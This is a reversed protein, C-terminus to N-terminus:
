VKTSVEVAMDPNSAAGDGKPQSERRSGTATSRRSHRGRVLAQVKSASMQKRMMSLRQEKARWAAQVKAAMSGEEKRISLQVAEAVAGSFDAGFDDLADPDGEEEEEEEEEGEKPPEAATMEMEKPVQPEPDFCSTLPRVAVKMDASARESFSSSGFKRRLSTPLAPGDAAGEGGEEGEGEEAVLHHFAEQIRPKYRFRM